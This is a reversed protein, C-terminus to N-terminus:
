RENKVGRFNLKRYEDETEVHISLHQRTKSINKIATRLFGKLRKEIRNQKGSSESYKKLEELKIKSFLRQGKPLLKEFEKEISKKLKSINENPYLLGFIEYWIKFHPPEGDEMRGPEGWNMRIHHFRIQMINKDKEGKRRPNGQYNDNTEFSHKGGMKKWLREKEREIQEQTIKNQEREVKKLSKDSEYSGGFPKFYRWLITEELSGKAVGTDKAFHRFPYVKYYFGFWNDTKDLTKLCKLCCDQRNCDNELLYIDVLEENAKKCIDCMKM